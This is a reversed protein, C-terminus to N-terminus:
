ESGEVWDSPWIKNVFEADNAKEVPDIVVVVASHNEKGLQLFLAGGVALPLRMHTALLYPVRTIKGM